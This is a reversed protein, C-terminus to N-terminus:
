KGPAKSKSDAPASVEGSPSVRKSFLRIIVLMIITLLGWIPFSVSFDLTKQLTWYLMSWFVCALLILAGRQPEGKGLWTLWGEIDFISLSRESGNGARPATISRVWFYYPLFQLIVVLIFTSDTVSTSWLYAQLWMWVSLIWVILAFIEMGIYATTNFGNEANPNVRTLAGYGMLPLLVAWLTWLSSPAEAGRLMEETFTARWLLLTVAWFVVSFGAILIYPLLGELGSGSVSPSRRM